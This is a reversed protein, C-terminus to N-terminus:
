TLIEGMYELVAELHKKLEQNREYDIATGRQHLVFEDLLKVTENYHWKLSVVAMEDALDGSIGVVEPIKFKRAM